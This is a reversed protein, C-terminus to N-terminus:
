KKLTALMILGIVVLIMPILSMFCIIWGWVYCNGKTLCTINYATIFIIIIFLIYLLLYLGAGQVYINLSLCILTLIISMFIYIWGQASYTDYM